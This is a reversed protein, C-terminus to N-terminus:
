KIFEGLFLGNIGDIRVTVFTPLAIVFLGKFTNLVIPRQVGSIFLKIMSQFRLSQDNWNSQFVSIGLVESKARVLSGFYCPIFLEVAM